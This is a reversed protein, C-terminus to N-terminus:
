PELELDFEPPGVTVIGLHGDVTILEGDSLSEVARPIGNVCPIGLERAIIAGHILMGGRREVVASALPVLHTMMPQIADCVLAEGAHFRGLDEPSLIRRVSGTAVGPAAPQGVLQRAKEFRPQPTSTAPAPTEQPLVVAGAAPDRLAASVVPALEQSLRPPSDTRGSSRLRDAAVQLARLLQSEIRALLLNDDDRLRWSLRGMELVGAAERRRAPGVADMLKQELRTATEHAPQTKAAPSRDRSRALELITRLLLDSRDALRQDRYAVDLCDAQLRQFDEVFARGGPLRSAEQLIEAAPRTGAPDAAAARDLLDALARHERLTQALKELARNRRTALMPEGRLLGVFEYPDQPRVADNYYTALRRVGHAFPIFEEWYVKKWRQVSALRHDIAAALEQDDLRDLAEGALTDGEAKLQPIWQEVVRRRLGELRAESPRLSLYWARQDDPQAAARTIPRAQLVALRDARGTWEVDAAWGFLREIQGVVGALAALDDEDLL